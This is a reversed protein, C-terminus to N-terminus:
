ELNNSKPAISLPRKMHYHILVEDYKAIHNEYMVEFGHKRFFPLAAQSVDAYLLSCGEQRALTAAYELLQAAIGQNQHSPHVYLCNLYGEPLYEMLGVAIGNKWALIPRTRDIRIHWFSASGAHHVWAAKQSDTYLLPDVAYVSQRYIEALLSADDPHAIRLIIDSMTYNDTIICKKVYEKKFM